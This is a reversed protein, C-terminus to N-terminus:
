EEEEMVPDVASLLRDLDKKSGGLELNILISNIDKERRDRLKRRAEKNQMHYKCRSDYYYPLSVSIGKAVESLLEPSYDDGFRKVFQAILVEQMEKRFAEVREKFLDQKPIGVLRDFLSQYKENVSDTIYDRILKTVRM